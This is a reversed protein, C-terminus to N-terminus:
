RFDTNKLVYIEIVRDIKSSITQKKMMLRPISYRLWHM